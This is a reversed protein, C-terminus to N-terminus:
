PDVGLVARAEARFEEETTCIQRLTELVRARFERRAWALYNTVQTIPIAHSAALEAYTPRAPAEAGRLDYADFLAFHVDKDEDRCQTQLADVAAAFVSRVWEHQFVRDPDADVPIEVQQLEGEATEFELRLPAVGGGRKQRAADRQENALFGDLCTRLYTRFRAKAPDYRAFWAKEMARAFFGQTADEADVAALGWRWRLYKYVPRWYVAIIAGFARSREEPDLSRTRLIASRHTVPFADSM